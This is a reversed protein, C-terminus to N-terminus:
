LPMELMAYRKDRVAGLQDLMNLLRPNADLVWSMECGVYGLRPGQKMTALVPLVDFGKGRHEPLVGMLAMRVDHVDGLKARALLKALGTPLLRGDPLHKLTRNLNPLSISFAVTEGEYDAFFVMNPDVVQKLDKALHAFEADTMPVHGWNEAWAANYIRLVDRAAEDFRTM